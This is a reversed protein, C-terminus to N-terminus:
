IAPISPRGGYRRVNTRRSPKRLGYLNESITEIKRATPDCAAWIASKM